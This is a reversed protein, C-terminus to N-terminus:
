RRQSRPADGLSLVLLVLDVQRSLGLKAYIQRVHFWVTSVKIGREEAICNATKGMAVAVAVQSETPTLGLTSAVLKANLQAPSGPEVVMVMAAVRGIAFDKQRDGAPIVHVVQRLGSPWSLVAMSGGAAQLGFRPLAAALLGQLPSDDAPVRARLLGDDEFLGSGRLLLGRARGNTEVIRGRRDLNIVGFRTDDLHRLLSANQAQAGGLAHRVRLFHRLHPLLSEIMAIQGCGWGRQETSDALAWVIHCGDPGDLRVNLGNQYGGLPLSKNYTESTKREEETYLDAVHVLHGDPLRSVRPVREDAPYYEGFYTQEWDENREGDHCVRAFFIEIDTQSHGEAMVLTNGRMGCAEDIRGSAAPWLSDDLAAENLSSLIGAIRDQQSM